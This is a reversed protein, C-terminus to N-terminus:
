EDMCWNLYLQISCSIPQNINLYCNSKSTVSNISHVHKTNKCLKDIIWEHYLWCLFDWQVVTLTLLSYVSRGVWLFFKWSVLAGFCSKEPFKLSRDPICWMLHNWLRSVSGQPNEHIETLQRCLCIVTWLPQWWYRRREQQKLCLHLKRRSSCHVSQLACGECNQMCIKKHHKCAVHRKCDNCGGHGISFDLWCTCCYCFTAVKTSPKLVPWDTTYDLLFKQLIRPNKTDRDQRPAKSTRKSSM